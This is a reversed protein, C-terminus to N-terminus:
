VNPEFIAALDDARHAPRKKVRLFNRTSMETLPQTSELAMIRSSPNPLSFLDVEDPGSFILPEFKSTTLNVVTEFSQKLIGTSVSSKWM